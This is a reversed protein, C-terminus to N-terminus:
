LLLDTVRGSLPRLLRPSSARTRVAARNAWYTPERENLEIAKSYFEIAKNWDHAAFAKNGETKFAAAQEEPTAM